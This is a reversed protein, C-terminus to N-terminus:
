GPSNAREQATTEPGAFVERGDCQSYVTVLRVKWGLLRRRLRLCPKRDRMRVRAPREMMEARRRLPRWFSEAYACLFLPLPGDWIEQPPGNDHRDSYRLDISGAGWRRVVDCSKAVTIRRPLLAPLAVTTTEARSRLLGAPGRHRHPKMTDFVTPLATTLCLVVRRNRCITASSICLGCIARGSPRLTSKATLARASAAAASWLVSRASTSDLRRRDNLFACRWHGPDPVAVEVVLGM